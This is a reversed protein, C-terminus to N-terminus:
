KIKREEERRGKKKLEKQEKKEKIEKKQEVKEEVVIEINTRKMKRRRQRGFHFPRSAFDAKIHKIILNKGLGKFQANAEVSDLLKNIQKAAKVPYRAPGIKKKHGLDANFRTFPISKKLLIVENLLKKAEQLNRNRIFSCIEIAQKTSISLSIGNAKATHEDKM